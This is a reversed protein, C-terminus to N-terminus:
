GESLAKEAPQKPEVGRRSGNSGSSMVVTKWDIPAGLLHLFTPGYTKIGEPSLVDKLPNAKYDSWLGMLRWPFPRPYEYFFRYAYEWASEVQERSLRYAEPKSLMQGLLKYYNVWSDPDHTFGRKRYHTQGAVVVPVGSMAMELGVTTTYVLGLDAVEILDYTNVNDKPGILHIHKPLKPHVERVVDVMSPGRALQEGPHIRIVLQVEPQGGFYQVTRSIWEAMSQSFVQRGLTLSDGLVNTALLVVPKGEELGLAKRAESGGQTPTGQWARSFSEWLTGSQRALFMQRLQDLEEPLLEKGGRAEWLKDTEQRMVESNQALWVHQKRDGFEYTVTRINQARALRYVVGQEHITGNPVIVVDPRNAKLWASALRAADTNRELRLHYIDSEPDVNESQLTYQVDYVTVERVAEMIEEPLPSFHPRSSYFSVPHILSRALGLVRQAYLNQRRLTFRDIPKDWDSYPLFGLTVQHGQAALALSLVATHEIWYHLCAFLFVKKPRTPHADRALATAQAVMEPLNAQLHRLSFRTAPAQQQRLLGYLEVTFPIQGLVSRVAQKGSVKM